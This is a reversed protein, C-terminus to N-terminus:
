LIEEYINKLSKAIHAWDFESRIYKVSANSSKHNKLVYTIKEELDKVSKPKVIAGFKGDQIIERPGPLDTCVVPKGCAMAEILVIGYAENLSPLVFVDCMDYYKPLEENPVNGSFLVNQLIGMDGAMKKYSPLLEGSGVIVLEAEKVEKKINKFAEILYDVGKYVHPKDLKGVFLIIKKDQFGLEQKLEQGGCGPYFISTDVGFRLIRTKEQFDKLIPSNKAHASTSATAMAAKKLFTRTFIEDYTRYVTNLLYNQSKWDQHHTILLPTKKIMSCLTTIEAGFHFPLHLHYLDYEQKLLFPFLSPCFFGKFTMLSPSLRHVVFNFDDDNGSKQPFPTIVEVDVDLKSLERSLHYVAYEMGGVYPLFFSTIHAIRM